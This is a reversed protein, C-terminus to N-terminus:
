DSGESTSSAVKETKDHALKFRLNRWLRIREAVKNLM